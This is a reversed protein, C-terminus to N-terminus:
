ALVNLALKSFKSSAPKSPYVYSGVPLPLATGAPHFLGLKIRGTIPLQPLIQASLFSHFGWSLCTIQVCLRLDPPLSALTSATLLSLSFPGGCYPRALSPPRSPSVRRQRWGSDDLGRVSWKSRFVSRSVEWEGQKEEVAPSIGTGM